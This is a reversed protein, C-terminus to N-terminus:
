AGSLKIKGLLGVTRFVQNSEPQGPEHDIVGITAPYKRDILQVATKMGGYDRVQNLFVQVTPQISLQDKGSVVSM